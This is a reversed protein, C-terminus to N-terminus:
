SGPRTDPITFGLELRVAFENVKRRYDANEIWGQAAQLARLAEAEEEKAAKTAQEVRALRSTLAAELIARAGYGGIVALVLARLANIPNAGGFDGPVILLIAIAGAAGHLFDGVFGADYAPRDGALRHPLVFGREPDRHAAALAGIGGFLPFLVVLGWGASGAASEATQATAVM